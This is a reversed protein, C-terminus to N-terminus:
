CLISSFKLILLSIKIELKTRQCCVDSCALTIGFSISRHHKVFLEVDNSQFLIDYSRSSTGYFLCYLQELSPPAVSSFRNKKAFGFSKPALIIIM